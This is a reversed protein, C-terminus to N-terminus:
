HGASIRAIERTYLGARKFVAQCTNRLEELDEASPGAPKARVSSNPVAFGESTKRLNSQSTTAQSTEELDKEFIWRRDRLAVVGMEVGLLEEPTKCWILYNLVVPTIHAAQLEEDENVLELPLFSRIRESPTMEMVKDCFDMLREELTMNGAPVITTNPIKWLGPPTQWLEKILLLAPESPSLDVIFLRARYRDQDSPQLTTDLLQEQFARDESRQALIELIDEEPINDM